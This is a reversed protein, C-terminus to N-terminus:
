YAMMALSGALPQRGSEASQGRSRPRAETVTPSSLIRGVEFQKGPLARAVMRVQFQDLDINQVGMAAPTAALNLPPRDMAPRDLGV